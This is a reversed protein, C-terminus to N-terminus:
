GGFMIKKDDLGEFPRVKRPFVRKTGYVTTTPRRTHGTPTLLYVFFPYISLVCFTVSFARGVCVGKGDDWM